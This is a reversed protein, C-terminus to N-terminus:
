LVRQKATKQWKTVEERKPRFIGRLLSKEFVKSRQEERLM